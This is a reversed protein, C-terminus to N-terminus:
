RHSERWDDALEKAEAIQSATMESEAIQLGSKASEDGAESALSFWKHAEVYDQTVGHGQAYMLGLNNQAVPHGKEAAKGWWTIAQAYDQDVGEGTDYM